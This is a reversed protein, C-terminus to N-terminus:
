SVRTVTTGSPRAVDDRVYVPLAEEAAVGRGEALLRAGLRAVADARPYVSDHLQLGAMALREALMPYRPLANGAVHLAAPADVGVREPASVAEPVLAAISGDAHRRYVGWYVEGMRADNCVLVTDGAAAAVQEAVAALSSVPAVQLGAGLALGQVVGSAIRLGTFAGPGRGFALGDLDALAIGAEDLLAEVMPLVLEAHGRETLQFRLRVAGDLLLAVSCAETSTDLALIRVV